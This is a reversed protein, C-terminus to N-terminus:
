LGTRRAEDLFGALDPHESCSLAIISHVSWGQERAGEARLLGRRALSRNVFYSLGSGDLLAPDHVGRVVRYKVRRQELQRFGLRQAGFAVRAYDKGADRHLLMDSAVETSEKDSAMEMACLPDDLLICDVRMEDVLRLNSDDTSITLLCDKGKDSMASAARLLCRESVLTGAVRLLPEDRLRAEYARYRGMLELGDTTLSTGRSTSLVLGTGTKEEADRVHKHLVPTSIGLRQAAKKMSGSEHLAVLSMIQKHTIEQGEAVFV